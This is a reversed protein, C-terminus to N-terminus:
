PVKLFWVSAQDVHGPWQVHDLAEADGGHDDLARSLATQVLEFSMPVDTYFAFVREAGVADDLIISGPLVHDGTPEIPVSMGGDAPALPTIARRGDVSVLYVYRRGAATYRFQVQAGASLTVGPEARVPGEPRNVYMALTPGGGGKTRNDGGPQPRPMTYVLVLTLVVLPAWARSAWSTSAWWARWGSPEPARELRALIQASAIEAPSAALHEAREAELARLRTTCHACGTVHESVVLAEPEPLEGLAWRELTHRRTDCEPGSM